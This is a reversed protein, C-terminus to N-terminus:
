VPKDSTSAASQVVVDAALVEGEGQAALLRRQRQWPRVAISTGLGVDVADFLTMQPLGFGFWFVGLACLVGPTLVAAFLARHDAAYEQGLAFLRPLYCLDPELLVIQATETAASGQLAISLDAQKFAVLDNLGDGVFCVTRGEAQLAAIRAAKDSPSLEAVAEDIGVQEAVAATLAAEDGSL